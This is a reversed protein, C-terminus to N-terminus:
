GAVLQGCDDILGDVLYVAAGQMAIERINVAPTDDPCFVTARIGARACYAAMAAGANGNTPMALHRVRLEKAMSVALVLGRAKFSGTPLRGEDKVLLEGGKAFRGALRPLSVLPTVVEGLSVINEPRRVPLLERYRWLTQPRAALMDKTLARSIGDLDYRVLLPKGAKSLGQIRDAEYREGTLGCELHTVFTPLDGGTWEIATM